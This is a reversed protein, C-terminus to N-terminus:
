GQVALIQVGCSGASPYNLADWGELFQYPTGDTGIVTLPVASWDAFNSSDAAFATTGHSQTDLTEVGAASEQTENLITGAAYAFSVTLALTGSTLTCTAQVDFPGVTMVAAPTAATGTNAITKVGSSFVRNAPFFASPAQGGLMTANTATAANTANTATAANTANTATAANTANTASIANTATVAKTANTAFAANAAYSANTASKASLVSLTSAKKSIESDAIKAVQKKQTSSLGLAKAIFGVPAQAFSTGGAALVLAVVSIAFAPSVRRTPLNKM